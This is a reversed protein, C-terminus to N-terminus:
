VAVAERAKEADLDHMWTGVREVLGASIARVRGVEGASMDPLEVVRMLGTPGAIVPVGLPGAPCGHFEGEELVVQGAILAENGQLLTEVLAVTVNATALVTKAGSLHTIYPKIVVRVDPPLTDVYVFADAVRGTALLAATHAGAERCMENFDCGETGRRVQRLAAATESPDLGFLRVSSWVPLQNQGHEGLMFGAVRQRRVGLDAAIERRFRLTDQFAGIGIVRERGIARAFTAVGLEVPNSVVVVIETGQGHRALAEAYESFVAANYAGLAARDVTGAGDTPPTRGCSVVWLDAYIDRPSLAV